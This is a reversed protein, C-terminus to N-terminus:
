EEVIRINKLKIKSDKDLESLKEFLRSNENQIDSIEQKFDADSDELAAVTANVIFKTRNCSKSDCASDIKKLIDNSIRLSIRKDKLM